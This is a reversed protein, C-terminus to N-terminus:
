SRQANDREGGEQREDDVERRKRARMTAWVSVSIFGCNKKRTVSSPEHSSIPLLMVLKTMQESRPRKLEANNAPPSYRM